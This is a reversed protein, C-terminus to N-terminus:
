NKSNSEEVIQRNLKAAKCHDSSIKFMDGGNENFNRVLCIACYDYSACSICEPFDKIKIARLSQLKESKTWIDVLSEQSVNGLLYGQWGACPYVDGNYGVCIIGLGVGCMPKQMYEEINESKKPQCLIDDTYQKDYKLIDQLLEKTQNESLRNELNTKDFDSQAMLVFDTQSKTKMKEAYALVEKYSHYNAKMTPCSIQVPINHAILREINAKTKTFSGVLKTIADHEEEKMSYLSVQILGINLTKFLRIHEETLAVLNSLITIKFDCKHAYNLIDPLGKHLLPDGGSITVELCNLTKAQELTKFILNLPIDGGKDKRENPLYCHICRENCRSTIEFEVCSLQPKEISKQFLLESTDEVENEDFSQLFTRLKTKPNNQYSFVPEKQEIEELTEGTTVFMFKELESVFHEFEAKLENHDTDSDYLLFLEDVIDNIKRAKRSICKLFDAGTENYLRDFYTLQNIIYGNEDYIRIFTDKNQKIYM